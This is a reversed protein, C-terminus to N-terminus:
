DFYVNLRVGGYRKADRAPEGIVANATGWLGSFFDEENANYFRNTANNVFLSVMYRGDPSTASAGLNLIGFPGQVTYPNQDAQFNAHTRWAYQANVRLDWPVLRQEIFHEAGLTLKFKPSDPMTKGSVDQVPGTDSPTCGQTETQGPYCPATKYSIFRADIWAASVTLHTASSAAVNADLELGSTRAAGANSLKLREVVSTTDYVQVQYNKYDTNFLATNVALAGGMLVMKSGLEVHQINEKNVPAIPDDSSLTQATNFARPKYGRAVTFYAMQDKGFKQRLTLDGVTATSTDSAASAYGGARDVIAYSIKDQNLRLGTLLSTSPNFNWTARGYLGLTKNDSTTTDDRPNVFMTRLYDQVVKTDSWFLGAVYSVPADLPSAVKFEQSTATPHLTVHQSNDFLPPVGPTPPLPIAPLRLIDLFYVATQTVDQLNHATETQRATTSTFTYGDVRRDINLSVDRDDIRSDMHVPSAYDTNGYRVDIGPLVQSQPLGATNWPFLPFLAAGPTLYQYTFTGGRSDSHAARGTLLIDLDKVPTFLLKARVGDSITRSDEGLLTNRIPYYRENGYGSVSFALMSALPGSVFANVRKERDSTLTLGGDGYWHTSPAQTIFNIVGASATRGGLTSQPGKLVEVARLDALENAAMSDSPVPVGDIMISVGSTLGVAAENANTSIGRMAMPVRGNFSGKLELSPIVLNLDTIESANTKQLADGTIVAAAVPTDVLRETRKQATIVVDQIAPASAPEAAPAAAQAAALSPFQGAVLTAAALAVPRLRHKTLTKFM